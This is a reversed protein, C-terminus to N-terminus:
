TPSEFKALKEINYYKRYLRNFKIVNWSLYSIVIKLVQQKVRYKCLNDRRIIRMELRESQDTRRKKMNLDDLYFTVM